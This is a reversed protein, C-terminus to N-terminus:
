WHCGVLNACSRLLRVERRADVQRRAVNDVFRDVRTALGAAERLVHADVRELPCPDSRRADHDPDREEQRANTEEDQGEGDEVPSRPLSGALLDTLAIISDLERFPALSEIV